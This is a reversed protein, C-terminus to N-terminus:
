KNEELWKAIEERSFYFDGIGITDSWTEGADELLSKITELYKEKLNKIIFEEIDISDDMYANFRSELDEAERMSDCCDWMWSRLHPELFEIATALGKKKNM